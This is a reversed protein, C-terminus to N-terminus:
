SSTCVHVTHLCKKGDLPMEAYSASRQLESKLQTTCVCVCVCVHVSVYSVCVYVYMCVWTCACAQIKVVHTGVCALCRVCIGLSCGTVCMACALYVPFCHFVVGSGKHRLANSYLSHTTGYDGSLGLM